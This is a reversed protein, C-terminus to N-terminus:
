FSLEVTAFVSRPALVFYRVTGSASVSGSGYKRVNGLNMGRVVLAYRSRALRASADLVHFAPLVRDDASTNDLFARSQYRGETSLTL